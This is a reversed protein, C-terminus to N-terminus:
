LGSHISISPQEDDSSNEKVRRNRKAAAVSSPHTAKPTIYSFVNSISHAIRHSLEKRQM